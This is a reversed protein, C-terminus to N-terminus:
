VLHEETTVKVLYYVITVLHEETTIVIVFYKETAVDSTGPNHSEGSAEKYYGM